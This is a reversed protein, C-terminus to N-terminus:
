SIGMPDLLRRFPAGWVTAGVDILPDEEVQFVYERDLGAALDCFIRLGFGADVLFDESSLGAGTFFCAGPLDDRLDCRGDITWIAADLV